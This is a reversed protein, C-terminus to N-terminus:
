GAGANPATIFRRGARDHAGCGSGHLGGFCLNGELGASASLEGGVAAVAEAFAAADRKGAGHQMLESLLGAMGDLGDPDSVAGGRVIAELGILPVDHKESLLLVTGNALEVREHAPLSVGAAHADLALVFLASAICLARAAIM